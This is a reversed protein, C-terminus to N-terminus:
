PRWRLSNDANSLLTESSTCSPDGGSGKCDLKPLRPAGDDSIQGCLKEANPRRGFFQDIVAGVLFQAEAEIASNVGSHPEFLGDHTTRFKHDARVLQFFAFVSVPVIERASKLVVDSRLTHTRCIV